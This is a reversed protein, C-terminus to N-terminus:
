LTGRRQITNEYAYSENEITCFKFYYLLASSLPLQKSWISLHYSESPVCRLTSSWIQMLKFALNNIKINTCSLKENSHLCEDVLTPLKLTLISSNFSTIKYLLNQVIIM